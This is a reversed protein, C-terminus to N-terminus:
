AAREAFFAGVADRQRDADTVAQISRWFVEGEAMAKCTWSIHKRAVRVGRPEGYFAYLADLHDVLRRGLERVDPAPLQTGTRLYHDIQAIIWPRGQAARGVMVADCGSADLVARAREPSNIDGNAIVPIRLRNKIAAVTQHEADGTYQQDRTRGHVAVAQIGAAEALVAIQLANKRADCYGTRMKLTVPVPVAAVVAACLRAVLAEDRMLASGADVRCVKKAPCGLNIDIIQAGQDVNFRAADALMDPCYGAIQVSIPGLEGEHDRRLRSKETHWLTADASTMESTALAAGYRRALQRFPRDTVGAMPALLVQGDLVYPGIQM